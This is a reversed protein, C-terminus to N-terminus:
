LSAIVEDLTTATINTGVTLTAGSAISTTAKYLINNVILLRGTTYARTAKFTVEVPAILTSFDSPLGDLKAVQNEPYQTSHGVPCIGTTVYEETGLPDCIQLADYPEATETAQSADALEYVMYVGSMAAKFTATDSYNSDIIYVGIGTAVFVMNNIDAGLHNITNGLGLYQSTVYKAIRIKMSDARKDTLSTSSFYYGITLRSDTMKSWTLTGLDVIGYRRTVTGDPAYTDGDFYINGASDVAPVGRLEIGALPYTHEEYPEYEGNRTPDSINICIDHKYTGGYATVTCIKFYYADQPSTVSQGVSAGIYSLFNKSVDYWFINIVLGSLSYKNYATNPFCPSFNKSRIRSSDSVPLGNVLSGTEWEEDWQNFGVTKHATPMASLLSPEATYAYFEEAFWSNLLALGSGPSAAEMAYIRDAVSAGLLVTVDIIQPWFKLNVTVGNRINLQVLITDSTKKVLVGNGTDYKLSTYGDRLYYTSPSGGIPCGRLYCVHGSVGTVVDLNLFWNATATGTVDVSGDVQKIRTIGNSTNASAPSIPNIQNWAISGGVISDYERTGAEVGGGTQRYLYPTQDEAYIHSSLQPSLILNDKSVGSDAINLNNDIVVVNGPIGGEVENAGINERAQAKEEDTLTQPITRIVSGLAPDDSPEVGPSAGPVVQLPPAWITPLQQTSNTGYVGIFLKGPDLLVAPVLAQGNADLPFEVPVDRYDPDIVQPNRFVVTKESMDAWDADFTFAVQYVGVTDAVLYQPVSAPEILQGAVTYSLTIM